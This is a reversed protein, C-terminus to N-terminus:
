ARWYWTNSEEGELWGWEKLEALSETDPGYEVDARVTRCFIEVNHPRLIDLGRELGRPNAM